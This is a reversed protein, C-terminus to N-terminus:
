TDDGMGDTEVFNMSQIHARTEETGLEYLLGYVRKLLLEYGLNIRETSLKGYPTYAFHFTQAEDWSSLEEFLEQLRNLEEENARIVLEYAAAQQDELIQGAGVSVYFTKRTYFAADGSAQTQEDPQEQVEHESM